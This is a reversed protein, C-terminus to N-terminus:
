RFLMKDGHVASVGIYLKRSLHTGNNASFYRDVKRGTVFLHLLVPHAPSSFYKYTIPSVCMAAATALRHMPPKVAAAAAAAASV